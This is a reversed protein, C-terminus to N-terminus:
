YIRLKPEVKLFLEMKESDDRRDYMDLYTTHGVMADTFVDESLSSIPFDARLTVRFDDGHVIGICVAYDNYELM